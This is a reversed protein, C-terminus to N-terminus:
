QQFKPPLFKRIVSGQLFRQCLNEPPLCNFNATCHAVVCNTWFEAKTFHAMPHTQTLLSQHSYSVPDAILFQILLRIRASCTDGVQWQDAEPFGRSGWPLCLAPAPSCQRSSGVAALEKGERWRRVQTAFSQKSGQSCFNRLCSLHWNFFSNNIQSLSALLLTTFACSDGSMQRFDNEGQASRSAGLGKHLSKGATNRPACFQFGPREWARGKGPSEGLVSSFLHLFPM